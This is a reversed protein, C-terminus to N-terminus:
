FESAYMQEIKKAINKWNYVTEVASRGEKGKATAIEPNDMLYEVKEALGKWDEPEYLYGWEKKIASPIGGVNAGIVPRGSSMAEVLSIGFGEIDRGAADYKAPLVFIGARKYLAQLEKDSVFGCFKVANKLGAKKVEVELRPRDPGDGAILLKVNKNNKRVVKVAKILTTIDKRPVLRCASLISNHDIDEADSAPTFIEPDTGNYIVHIRKKEAGWKIALKGCYDSVPCVGDIARL